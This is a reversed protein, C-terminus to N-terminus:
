KADGEKDRYGDIPIRHALLRGHMMVLLQFIFFSRDTTMCVQRTHIAFPHSIAFDPQPNRRTYRRGDNSGTGM